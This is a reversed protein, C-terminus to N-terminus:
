YDYIIVIGISIFVFVLRMIADRLSCFHERQHEDFFDSALGPRRASRMPQLGAKRSLTEQCLTFPPKWFNPTANQPTGMILM